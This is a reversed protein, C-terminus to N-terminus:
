PTGPEVPLDLWAPNAPTSSLTIRTGEVSPDRARERYDAGMVTLQLRHGAPVVYSTPLLDFHLSAAVGPQLPQADQAYARHWPTGPVAFPPTAEARLSAKLRGETIVTIRNDAAVDELYAFLNADPRDASIPLNVVPNGTITLDATLASSRVSLGEGATHCPQMFPGVGGEPCNAATHVVFTGDAVRGPAHRDLATATSVFWRELRMGPVPWTPSSKWRGGGDGGMTFYHVPPETALGLAAGKLYTDFFRHMEQLLEFGPNQCHRWPGILVRSGPLNLLAILGQDRLEDHWGGMIYVPIALQRLQPAYSSVSSEAWFRSGVLASWSDRFPLQQWMALLDTSSQHEQAATRLLVKAADGDVAEVALDEELTRQPGTGWQAFIGGRRMADFKSWSFCGAFVARLHPPRASLAHMAADGTNSCGYIGVSGSSWPQAALWETVEYADDDETRDNYGRRSGFSQGNGRRAVQVAVYGYATLAPLQNLGADIPEQVADKTETITLAHQWIVPFRGPAPQGQLAPRTIRVALRVGDRMSIYLTSSVSGTFMKEPHYTGFGEIQAAWIPPCTSAMLLLLMWHHRKPM